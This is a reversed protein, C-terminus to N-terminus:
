KKNVKNLIWEKKDKDGTTLIIQDEKISKIDFAWNEGFPGTGFVFVLVEGPVCIGKKSEYPERFYSNYPQWLSVEGDENFEFSTLRMGEIDWKGILEQAVGLEVNLEGIKKGKEDFYEWKGEPISVLYEGKVNVQGNSYYYVVEGNLDGYEYNVTKILQGDKTEVRSLGNMKDEKFQFHSITDGGINYFSSPGELLGDVYNKKSKLNGNIYWETYSGDKIKQGNDDIYYEFRKLVTGTSPDTIEEIANGCSAFILALSLIATLQKM